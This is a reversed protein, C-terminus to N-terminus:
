VGKVANVYTEMGAEVLQDSIRYNILPPIIKREKVSDLLGAEVLLKIYCNKLKKIGSDSWKQVVESQAIKNDFFLNLDKNDIKKEGLKIKERFVEFVFEFFLLDTKMIGILVLIKASSIDMTDIKLTLDKPLANLRRMICNFARKKRDDAKIQYMNEKMVKIEFIDKIDIGNNMCRVTDKTENFWYLQSVMGASYKM